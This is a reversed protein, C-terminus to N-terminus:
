DAQAEDSRLERLRQKLELARAPGWEEDGARRTDLHLKMLKMVHDAKRDMEVLLARGFQHGVESKALRFGPNGNIRKGTRICEQCWRLPEGLKKVFGRGECHPCNPELWLQLARGTIVRVSEADYFKSRAGLAIAFVHLAQRAGSLTKLHVLALARATLAARETADRTREARELAKDAEDKLAEAQRPSAGSVRAAAATARRTLTRADNAGDRAAEEAQRLQARTLDWESRLRFLATGLSEHCWGAAVLYDVDGRQDPQAALDSSELARAYREDLTPRDEPLTM